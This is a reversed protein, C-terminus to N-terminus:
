VNKMRAKNTVQRFFLIYLIGSMFTTLVLTMFAGDIGFLPVLIYNSSISLITIVVLVIVRRGQAGSLTLVMGPVITLYRIFIVLSLSITIAKSNELTIAFFQLYLAGFSFCAIGIILGLAVYVNVWMFSTKIFNNGSSSKSIIPYIAQSLVSGLILGGFLLKILIQYVGGVEDSTLGSIIFIDFTAYAVSIISHTAYPLCKSLDALLGHFFYNIRLKNFRFKARWACYILEIIAGLVFGYFVFVIDKYVLCFYLGVYVSATRLLNSRLEFEFSNKAQFIAKYIIAFSSIFAALVMLSLSPSEGYNVLWMMTPVGLLALLFWKIQSLKNILESAVGVQPVEKLIILKAGYDFIQEFFVFLAVGYSLQGVAQFDMLKALIFFLGVNSFSKVAFIGISNILNKKFV